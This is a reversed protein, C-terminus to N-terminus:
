DGNANARRYSLEQLREHTDMHGDDVVRKWTADPQMEWALRDDALNVELIEAIRSKLVPDCIPALVEVRNDLNRSMLDASGLYFDSRGFQFIRSHELYRGLISRVRINESLGEIGARVACMGRVILDIQAGKNSADYLADIIQADVLNNLKFVIRGGPKSERDILELLRDRLALPAVLIRRFARQRSFGTLYNFLDSIDAGVDPDASLVGVDEYITATNPNYNGTGIHTYRRLTNGEQRVVLAAKAHTKLGVLGYVVHVGAQELARAWAINAEEDFRAKLEVLAVVQKGHESARILNRIIPSPPGSTRYLTWKIALVHPDTAAHEVFTQVSTTFSDYPHHVLVDGTRLVDFISDGDDPLIMQGEVDVTPEQARYVPALRPQTQPVWKDEKLDPRDLAHIAWLDGLDLQAHCTYVDADVLELEDILLDRVYDTMGEGIELRVVHPSRRRHRLGVEIAALLDDAEEEEVELDASRTVRFPYTALIDMGPFLVDLRAAILQELPLFCEGDTLPVYRPLSPPVKIRAFRPEPDLPDCAVVALNLSLNSIYPFPHAPDVALPTLVPSIHEDFYLGLLQQDERGLDDWSAFSIQEKALAPIIETHTCTTSGANSSSSASASRRSNNRRRRRSRRRQASGPWTSPRSDPSASRSSSTSTRASSRSSSSAISSRRRATDEALALVRANFELWSLERNLSREQRALHPAAVVEVDADVDLDTM